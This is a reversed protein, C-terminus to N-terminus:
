SGPMEVLHRKERQERRRGDKLCAESRIQWRDETYHFGQVLSPDVQVPAKAIVDSTLPVSRIRLPRLPWLNDRFVQQLQGLQRLIRSHMADSHRMSTESRAISVSSGLEDERAQYGVKVLENFLGPLTSVPVMKMPFFLGQGESTEGCLFPHGRYVKKGAGTLGAGRDSLFEDEEGVDKTYRSEYISQVIGCNGSSCVARNQTGEEGFICWVTHDGGAAGLM